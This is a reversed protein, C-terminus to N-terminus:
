DYGLRAGVNNEHDDDSDSLAGIFAKWTQFDTRSSTGTSNAPRPNLTLVTPAGSSSIEDAKRAPAPSSLLPMPSVVAGSIESAVGGDNGYRESRIKMENTFFEQILRMREAETPAALGSEIYDFARRAMDFDYRQTTRSLSPIEVTPGTSSVPHPMQQEPTEAASNAANSNRLRHRAAAPIAQYATLFAHQTYLFNFKRPKQRQRIPHGVRPHRKTRLVHGRQPRSRGQCLRQARQVLSVRSWRSPPWNFSASDPKALKSNLFAEVRARTEAFPLSKVRLLRRNKRYPSLVIDFREQDDKDNAEIGRSGSFAM